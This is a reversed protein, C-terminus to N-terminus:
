PLVPLEQQGLHQSMEDQWVQLHSSGEQLQVVLAFEIVFSLRV